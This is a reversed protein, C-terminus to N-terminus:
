TEARESESFEISEAREPSECELSELEDGEALSCELLRSCNSRESLESFECLEAMETRALCSRETSRFSEISSERSILGGSM